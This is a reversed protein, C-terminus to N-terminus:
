FDRVTLVPCKAHTIVSYIITQKFHSTASTLIQSRPVGLVILDAESKAAANLIANEPAGTEVCFCAPTPLKTGMPIIERLTHLASNSLEADGNQVAHMLTLQAGYEQALSIVYRAASLSEPGFDTGYLINRFGTTHSAGSGAVPGVTMVPRDAQRFIKEATSGILVKAMGSRGHTGIILLDINKAQIIRELNQWIDGRQLLIEHPLVTLEEEIQLMIKERSEAEEKAIAPWESPPLLPFVDPPIVHAVYITSGFRRAFDVAYMVTEHTTDSFDTAVLVNRFRVNAPKGTEQSVPSGSFKDEPIAIRDKDLRNM